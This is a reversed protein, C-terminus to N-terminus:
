QFFLEDPYNCINRQVCNDKESIQYRTYKLKRMSEILTILFPVDGEIQGEEITVLPDRRGEHTVLTVQVADVCLPVTEEVEGNEASVRKGSREEDLTPAGRGEGTVGSELGRKM